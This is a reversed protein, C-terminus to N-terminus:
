KWRQSGAFSSRFSSISPQKLTHIPRHATGAGVSQHSMVVAAACSATVAASIAGSGDGSRFGAKTLQRRNAMPGRRIRCSPDPDSGRCLRSSTPQRDTALRPGALRSFTRAFILRMYNYETGTFVRATHTAGAGTLSIIHWRDVPM